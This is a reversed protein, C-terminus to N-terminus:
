SSPSGVLSSQVKQRSVVWEDGDHVARTALSVVDSGSGPESFLQCWIHESTFLPRLYKDIHSETGDTVPTRAVMGYGIGNHPSPASGERLRTM